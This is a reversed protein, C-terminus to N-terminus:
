ARRRAAQRRHSTGAVWLSLILILMGDLAHFGGVWKNNDGANALLPQAALTLVALALAGIVASRGPRALAVMVFLVVAVVGLVTGLARHPDFSAANAVQRVHDGFVGVGALFVQALVGLAFLGTLHAYVRDLGVRWGAVATTDEAPSASTEVM